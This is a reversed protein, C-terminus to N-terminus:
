GRALRCALARISDSGKDFSGVFDETSVNGVKVKSLRDVKM